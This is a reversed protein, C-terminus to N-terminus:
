TTAIKSDQQNHITPQWKSSNGDTKKKNKLAENPIKEELSDEM